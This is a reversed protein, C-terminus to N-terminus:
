SAVEKQERHEKVISGVRSKSLGFAQAAEGYSHGAEVYALIAANRDEGTEPELKAKAKELRRNAVRCAAELSDCRAKTYDLESKLAQIDAETARITIMENRMNEAYSEASEAREKLAQLAQEMRTQGHLYALLYVAKYNSTILPEPCEVNITQHLLARTERCGFREWEAAGPLEGGHGLYALVRDVHPSQRVKWTLLWRRNCLVTVAATIVAVVAIWVRFYLQVNPLQIASLTLVVAATVGVRTGPSLVLCVLGFPDLLLVAGILAATLDLYAAGPAGQLGCGFLAVAPILTVWLRWREGIAYLVGFLCSVM